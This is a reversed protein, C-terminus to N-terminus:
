GGFGTTGLGSLERQLEFCRFRSLGHDLRDVFGIRQGVMQHRKMPHDPDFTSKDCLRSGIYNKREQQMAKRM